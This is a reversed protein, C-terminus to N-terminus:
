RRMAPAPPLDVILHDLTGWAVQDLFQALLKGIMPGRWVAAQDPQAILALSM